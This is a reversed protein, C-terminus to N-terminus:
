YDKVYLNKDFERRLLELERELSTDIQRDGFRLVFGGIIKSDVREELEIKSHGTQKEILGKIKARFEDSIPAATTLVAEEIENNALYLIVFQRAIEVVVGERRKKILLNFFASTTTSLKGDFIASFIAEKKDPKIVPSRLVVELERNERITKDVLQMDASVQELEGRESALDFLSRAYRVAAKTNQM